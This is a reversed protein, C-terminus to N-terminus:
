PKQVRFNFTGSAGSLEVVITWAGATGSDTQFTGTESLSRSYLQAGNADRVILTASGGSPSTAQNVNASTGTNQWNYTLTQTVNDLNSVQWQFNDTANTIEPQNDPGIVNGGDCAAIAVALLAAGAGLRLTQRM